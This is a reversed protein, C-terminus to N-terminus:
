RKKATRKKATPRTLEVLEPMEFGIKDEIIESLAIDAVGMSPPADVLPRSIAGAGSNCKSKAFSRGANRGRRPVYLRCPGRDFDIQEDNEGKSKACM